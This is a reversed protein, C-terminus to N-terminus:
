NIAVLAHWSFIVCEIYEIISFKTRNVLVYQIHLISSSESLGNPSAFSISRM